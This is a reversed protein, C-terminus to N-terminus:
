SPFFYPSSKLRSLLTSFSIALPLNWEALFERMCNAKTTTYEAYKERHLDRCVLGVISIITISEIAVEAEKCISAQLNLIEEKSVKKQEEKRAKKHGSPASSADKSSKKELPPHESNKM